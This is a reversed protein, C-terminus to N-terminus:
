RWVLLPTLSGTPRTYILPEWGQDQLSAPDTPNQKWRLILARNLSLYGPSNVTYGAARISSNFNQTVVFALLGQLEGPGPNSIM